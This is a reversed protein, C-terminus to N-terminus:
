VARLLGVAVLGKAFLLARPSSRFHMVIQFGRVTPSILELSKISPFKRSM